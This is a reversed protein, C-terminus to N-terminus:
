CWEAKFGAALMIDVVDRYGDPSGYKEEYKECMRDAEDEDDIDCAWYGGDNDFVITMRGDIKGDAKDKFLKKYNM